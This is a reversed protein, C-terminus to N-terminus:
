SLPRDLGRRPIDDGGSCKDIDVVLRGGRLVVRMFARVSGITENWELVDISANMAIESFVRTFM